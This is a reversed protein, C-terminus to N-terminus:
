SVEIDIYEIKGIHNTIHFSHLLSPRPPDLNWHPEVQFEMNVEDDLIQDIELLM